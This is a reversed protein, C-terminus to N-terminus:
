KLSAGLLSGQTGPGPEYERALKSIPLDPLLKVIRGLVVM